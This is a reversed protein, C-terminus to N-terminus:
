AARDKRGAVLAPVHVVGSADCWEVVWSPRQSSLVPQEKNRLLTVTWRPCPGSTAAPEVQWRTHAASLESLEWSPRALVCLSGSSAAALQLRRSNPMSLGHADAIVLVPISSRLAVDMSWLASAADPPNIFSSRALVGPFRGLLPPYPWCHRGIWVARRIIGDALASRALDVFVCRPPSWCRLDRSGATHKCGFWEHTCGARLGVGVCAGGGGGGGGRVREGWIALMRQEARAPSALRDRLSAAAQSLSM